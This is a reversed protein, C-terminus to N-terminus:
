ADTKKQNQMSIKTAFEMPHTILKTSELDELHMDVASIGQQEYTTYYLIGKETNYCSSYVTKEYKGGIQVCGKKQSAFSLIHFFQCVNDEENPEAISNHLAFAARVFRSASSLDGPLGFAGMGRSYPELHLRNSFRNEAATPSLNMYNALNHLHYDFPPNNTLVHIPDDHVLLGNKTTELVISQQADAIMWHLPTPPLQHSFADNTIHIHQLADKVQSVNKFQSLLWPILEFSAINTGDDTPQSYVANGPFNLGAASLGHENTADYYLPYNNIVTAIGIIAYHTSLTRERRFLLPYRRPMICVTECYRHELDLNRGFYHEAPHYSIATCM